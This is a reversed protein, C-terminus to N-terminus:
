KEGDETQITGAGEARRRALEELLLKRKAEAEKYRNAAEERSEILAEVAINGTSQDRALRENQHLIGFMGVRQYASCEKIDEITLSNLIQSQKLSLIDARHKKFAELNDIEEKYEQLRYFVNPKSCGVIKAIEQYSLGKSRLEILKQLPIDKPAYPSPDNVDTISNPINQEISNQMNHEIDNPM